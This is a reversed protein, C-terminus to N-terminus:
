AIEQSFNQPAMYWTNVGGSDVLLMHGTVYGADASALFVVARAVDKPSGARRLPLRMVQEALLPESGAQASSEYRAPVSAM